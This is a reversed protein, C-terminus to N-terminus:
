SIFVQSFVLIRIKESAFHPCYAMLTQLIKTEIGKLEPLSIHDQSLFFGIFEKQNFHTIVLENEGAPAIKVQKWLPSTNLQLRLEATIICGIFIRLKVKNEVQINM